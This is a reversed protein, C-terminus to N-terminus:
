ANFSRSLPTGRMELLSQIVELEVFYISFFLCVGVTQDLAVQILTKTLPSSVSSQRGVRSASQQTDDWRNGLRELLGFWWHFYPGEYVLGSIIFVLLLTTDLHFSSNGSVWATVSQSLLCGLGGVISQTVAKTRLPYTECWTHYQRGARRWAPTKQEVATSACLPLLSQPHRREKTAKHSFIRRTKGPFCMATPLTTTCCILVLVAVSLHLTRKRGNWRRSSIRSSHRQRRRHQDKMSISDMCVDDNRGPCQYPLSPFQQASSRPHAQFSHLACFGKARVDERNKPFSSVDLNWTSVRCVKM